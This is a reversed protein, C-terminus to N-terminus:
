PEGGQEARLREALKAVPGWTPADGYAAELDRAASLLEAATAFDGKAVARRAEHSRADADFSALKVASCLECDAVEGNCYVPTEGDDALVIRGDRRLEHQWDAGVWQGQAAEIAHELDFVHAAMRYGPGDFSGARLCEFCILHKTGDTKGDANYWPAWIEGPTKIGAASCNECSATDIKSTM